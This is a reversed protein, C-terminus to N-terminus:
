WFGGSGPMVKPPIHVHVSFHRFEDLLLIRGSGADPEVAHVIGVRGDRGTCLTLHVEHIVDALEMHFPVVAPRQRKDGALVAEGHQRRLQSRQLQIHGQGGIEILPVLVAFEIIAACKQFATFQAAILILDRRCQDFVPHRLLRFSPEHM